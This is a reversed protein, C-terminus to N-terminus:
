KQIEVALMRHGFRCYICKNKECYERRLQIMAQSDFADHCAVGASTFLRVDKNDEARFCRLLDPILSVTDIDGRATARALILPIAVNIMLRDITAENLARPSAGYTNAFTYRTTWFGTLRIDFERRIASLSPLDPYEIGDTHSYYCISEMAAKSRARYFDAIIDDLQGILRFGQHIKQALMALRRYPFNQPRTRALKWQLPIPTLSFKRAMFQYEQRLRTVYGDEDATPSPIMGAQGFILAEMTVLEDRHRNLFKLPLNKALIEFPEANLGFGLARSLTIYAAAEWDGETYEVLRLIRDSKNYLRQLALASIWETHFLTPLTAITSACPLSSAAGSMLLNCRAAAASSCRVTIQPIVNGDPRYVPADDTMVVHLIVSDYARDRDHGHRYWDSAKVHLEINGAWRQGGIEISANFFDPGADCNLTGPNLIRVQRGDSTVLPTYDWLRHQWVFQMLKEM